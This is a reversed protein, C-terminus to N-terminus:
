SKHVCFSDRKFIIWYGDAPKISLGCRDVLDAIKGLVEGDIEAHRVALNYGGSSGFVDSAVVRMAVGDYRKDVPIIDRVESLLANVESLDM